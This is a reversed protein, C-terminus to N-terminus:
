KYSVNFSLGDSNVICSITSIIAVQPQIEEFFSIFEEYYDGLLANFKAEDIGSKIDAVTLEAFVDIRDAFNRRQAMNNTSDVTGKVVM